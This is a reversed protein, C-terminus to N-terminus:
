SRKKLEGEVGEIQSSKDIFFANDGFCVGRALEAYAKSLAQFFIAM